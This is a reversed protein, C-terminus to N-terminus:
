KAQNELALKNLPNYRLINAFFENRLNTSLAQVFFKNEAVQLVFVNQMDGSDPLPNILVLQIKAKTKFKLDVNKKKSRNRAVILMDNFLYLRLVQNKLQYKENSENINQSDITPSEPNIPSSLNLNSFKIEELEHVDLEQVLFRHPAILNTDDPIGKLEEIISVVRLTSDAKKKTQNIFEATKRVEVLANVLNEYDCHSSDTHNVLDQLLLVYRPIRQIPTLLHEALGIMRCEPKQQCEELFVKFAPYDDCCKTITEVVSNYNNVLGVYIRLYEVLKLFVDGITQTQSWNQFREELHSLLESNIGYISQVEPFMQKILKESIIPKNNDV